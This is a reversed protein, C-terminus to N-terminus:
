KLAGETGENRELRDCPNGAAKEARGPCRRFRRSGREDRARERPCICAAEDGPGVALRGEDGAPISTGILMSGSRRPQPLENLDGTVAEPRCPM